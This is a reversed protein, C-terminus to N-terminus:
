DLKDILKQASKYDEADEPITKLIELCVDYKKQKLNSLALYWTAKNKYVSQGEKLGELLWDAIAFNNLEINTVGRYFQLESNQEDTLLLEKFAVEATAFDKTNFAKEATKLLGDQNGRVTFSISEYNAYDSYIPSSLNNFLTIGILLAISAAMAYQWPKFRIIKKPSQQKEFYTASINKLNNQFTTSAEENKMKHELFSSLEKYTNFSEKFKSDTELRLEFTNIDEEPLDGLLYTEFLIYDQDEM